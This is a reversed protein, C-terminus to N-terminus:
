GHQTQGARPTLVVVSTQAHAETADGQVPVNFLNRWRNLCLARWQRAFRQFEADSTSDTREEFMKSLAVPNATWLLSTAAQSPLIGAAAEYIQKRDLGKPLSGNKVRHSEEEQTIYQLYQDYATQMAQRFLEIAETGGELMRPPVVFHGPHRTYRTSEMSPSGEEQRDSGVYHRILEHSVRRSIGALFFTMKAHYMISRHPVTGSQSHAIYDANTKRGAKLGYSHYCNRGALEVLLENDSVGECDHPFLHKWVPGGEEDPLCEPRYQGVWETLAALGDHDLAMSAIPITVPSTVLTVPVSKATM